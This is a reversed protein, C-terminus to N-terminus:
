NEPNLRIATWGYELQGDRTKSKSRGRLTKGDSSLIVQSSTEQGTKKDVVVFRYTAEGKPNKGEFTGELPFGLQIKAVKDANSEVPVELFSMGKFTGKGADLFSLVGDGVRKERSPVKPNSAWLWTGSILRAGEAAKADAKSGKGQSSPESGKVQGDSGDSVGSVSSARSSESGSGSTAIAEALGSYPKAFWDVSPLTEVKGNVVREYGKSAHVWGNKPDTRDPTVFVSVVGAEQAGKVENPDSVGDRDADFWLAISKLEKDKLKGDSDTDLTELAEYGNKWKKGFTHNGFLQTADRVNREGAPDWVLLPAESSARWQYSQGKVGKLHLPFESVTFSSELDHGNEWLLSVPSFEWRFEGALCGSRLEDRAIINCSDDLTVWFNGGEREAGLQKALSEDKFPGEVAGGRPGRQSDLM